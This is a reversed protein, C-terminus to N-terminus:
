SVQGACAPASPVVSRGDPLLEGTDDFFVVGNCLLGWGQEPHYAVLRAAERGAADAPPCPPQHQCM